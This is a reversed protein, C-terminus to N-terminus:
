LISRVVGGDVRLAAGNIASGKPSCVLAVLAAVEDTNAFRKILSSPRLIKFFEEEVQKEDIDRSKGVDKVFDKVGESYTPGPLVSNVTVKTGAAIEALGRAISIQATKTVGYHIMETPINVGSESSIFVIRGWDKAMMQPLYVRSLRIGSLVNIEFIRMWDEDTIWVFPKVEYIGVNNILIDINRVQKVFNDIEMKNAADFPAPLLDGIVKESKLREIAENVRDMSRGNVYVHAGEQALFKAIAYGIGGTSGTVLARKGKLELDM